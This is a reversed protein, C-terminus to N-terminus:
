HLVHKNSEDSSVFHYSRRPVVRLLNGCGGQLACFVVSRDAVAYRMQVNRVHRGLPEEVVTDVGRRRPAPLAAQMAFSRPTEDGVAGVLHVGSPEANSMASPGGATMFVAREVLAHAFIARAVGDRRELLNACLKATLFLGVGSPFADSMATASLAFDLVTGLMASLAPIAPFMGSVAM